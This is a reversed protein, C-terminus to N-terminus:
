FLKSCEIKSEAVRQALFSEIVMRFDVSNRSIQDYYTKLLSIRLFPKSDNYQPAPIFLQQGWNLYYITTGGDRLTEFNTVDIKKLKELPGKYLGPNTPDRDDIVLYTGHSNRLVSFQNLPVDATQASFSFGLNAVVILIASFTRFKVDFRGDFGTSERVCCYAM